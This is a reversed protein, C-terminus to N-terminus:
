PSFAQYVEQLVYLLFELLSFLSITRNWIRVQRVWKFNRHSTMIDYNITLVSLSLGVVGVTNHPDESDRAPHGPHSVYLSTEEKSAKTKTSMTTAKRFPLAATNVLSDACAQASLAAQDFVCVRIWAAGRLDCHKFDNLLWANIFGMWCGFTIENVFAPFLSIQWWTQTMNYELIMLVLTFFSIKCLFFYNFLIM